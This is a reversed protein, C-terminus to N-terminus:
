FLCSHCATTWFLSIFNIKFPDSQHNHQSYHRHSLPALLSKPSEWSLSFLSKFCSTFLLPTSLLWIRYKNSLLILIICWCILHSFFLSTLIVGLNKAGTVSIILPAILQSQFSILHPVNTSSFLIETQSMNLISIYSM